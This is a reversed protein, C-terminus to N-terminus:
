SLLSKPTGPLPIYAPEEDLLLARLVSECVESDYVILHGGQPIEHSKIWPLQGMVYRQLEIPVVKDEYGVFLHVSGEDKLFPNNLKLPDFDWKSFGVLFDQRLNDFVSRKELKNESLLEFGPTRKLLEVDRESFFVPNKEMMNSPPFLKQTMWWYLLGPVSKLVCLALKVLGKRFDDKIVSKPLSPWRYNVVSAMLAVGQLRHPIYQLCSWTPYSGLSVGIVYFKPGLELQDALQEIDLAESKLSKKPNPDSEGYGARDYLVMYIKLGEMVEQPALFSMDKNSNFGHVVIIKFNADKKSVGSERYALIRGDNLRIRPSIIESEPDDISKSSRKRHGGGSINGMEHYNIWPLKNALFRQLQYPVLKDEYGQWLHVSGVKGKFPSKLEMPDFEWKGFGIKLDRYLSEEEGQQRIKYENPNPVLAMKHITEVDKTNFIMPHRHPLYKLFGWTIYNGLSVGVVYFKSGLDLHDALEQVDFTDSKITRKPNPDSEGYGPRDITVIYLGKKEVFEKSLPLYIDKSSDFGHVVIAKYIAEDKPVGQEKYALQRGDSLKIIPTTISVPKGCVKSSPM